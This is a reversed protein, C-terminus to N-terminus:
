INSLVNISKQNQQKYTVNDVVLVPQTSVQPTETSTTRSVIGSGVSASIRSSQTPAAKDGSKIANINAQGAALAAAAAVPGLVYGVYPISAASKYAAIASAYMDIYAAALVLQKQRKSGEEELKALSTALNSAVGLTGTAASVAKDIKEQKLKKQADIAQQTTDDDLKRKANEYKKDIVLKEAATLDAVAIDAEYQTKLSELKMNKILENHAITIEIIETSTLKENQLKKDNAIIEAEINADILDAKFNANNIQYDKYTEDASTISDLYKVYSATYAEAKSADNMKSKTIIDVEQQYINMLRDKESKLIADNLEVVNDLRSKNTLEYTSLAIQMNTIEYSLRTDSLDKISENYNNSIVTANNNYEKLKILGTSYALTNAADELRKIEDLRDKELKFDNDNFDLKDKLKSENANKYIDIELEAAKLKAQNLDLLIAKEDESKKLNLAVLDNYIPNLLNTQSGKSTIIFNIKDYISKKELDYVDKIGKKKAEYIAQVSTLGDVERKTALEIQKIDLDRLRITEDFKEKRQKFKFNEAEQQIYTNRLKAEAYEKSQEDTLEELEALDTLTKYRAKFIYQEAKFMDEEIQQIYNLNDGRLKAVELLLTNKAIIKDYKSIQKELSKNLKDAGAASSSFFGVIDDWYAIVTGLAVILAGIGTSILAKKFLAMSFTARGTAAAYLNMAGASIATWHATLKSILAGEKSMQNWLNQAGAALSAFGVMREISKTSEETGIDLTSMAGTVLQGAAGVAEMGSVIANMSSEFESGTSATKITDNVANMSDKLRGAEAGLNKFEQTDDKGALALQQMKVRIASLQASLPIIASNEKKISETMANNSATATALYKNQKQLETNLGKYIANAEIFAPNSKDPTKGFADLSDKAKQVETTLEAISQSAQEVNITLNLVETQEAM